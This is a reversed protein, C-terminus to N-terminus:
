AITRKLVAGCDECRYSAEHGGGETSLRVRMAALKAPGNCRWCLILKRVNAVTEGRFPSKSETTMTTRAEAPEV